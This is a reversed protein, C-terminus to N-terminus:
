TANGATISFSVVTVTASLEIDLSDLVVDAGSTDDVTLDMCWTTGDAKTVRAWGATGAAVAIAPAPLTPSLVGASPTPAFPNGLTHSSLLTGEAGGPSPKTGSYIELKGGAGVTATIAALRANRLETSYAPM